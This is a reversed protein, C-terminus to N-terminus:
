PSLAADLEHRGTVGLKGFANQLHNDITRTSLSLQEAIQRSTLGQAALTAIERERNTLAALEPERRTGPPRVGECSEILQHALQGCEAARRRLGERRYADAAGLAAEAAILDVDLDALRRAADELARGSGALVADAHGALAPVMDGDIREALHVLREREARAHGLRVLDHRLMAEDVLLGTEGAQHAGHRL